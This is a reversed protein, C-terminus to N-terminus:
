LAYPSQYYKTVANQFQGNDSHITTQNAAGTGFVAGIGGVEVFEDVHEFLYQVRNDRYQGAKGGPTDSPVGLPLQWWLMPRGVGDVIKKVWALHDHFNPSTENTEDWYWTGGGRQCIPDVGAEFCGADRDLMDTFVLDADGAGIAMLYQAIAEPSSAAWGSAHFGVLAKPAYKRALVLFCQGMGVMNDPLASCDAAEGSVKAPMASPDPYARQAYAWFDPEFHVVAAADLEGIRVFLLKLTDWYKTMFEVNDAAALNNEGWWAMSYLTYMPVVGNDLAPRALITVFSGDTNWDPWGGEGGLGVLYAYHLDLTVGLTYAGDKTHDENLDNGLGIVFHDRGLKRAIAKAGIPDPEPPPGAASDQAEVAASSGGGGDNPTESATEECGVAQLMAVIMILTHTRSGKRM